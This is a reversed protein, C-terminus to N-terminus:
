LFAAPHPQNSFDRAGGPYISGRKFAFGPSHLIRPIHSKGQVSCRSHINDQWCCIAELCLILSSTGDLLDIFCLVCIVFRSSAVSKFASCFGGAALVDTRRSSSPCTALIALNSLLSLLCEKPFRRRRLGRLPEVGRTQCRGRSPKTM